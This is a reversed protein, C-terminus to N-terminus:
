YKLMVDSLCKMVSLDIDDKCKVFYPINPLLDFMNDKAVDRSDFDICVRWVYNDSTFIVGGDIKTVKIDSPKFRMDKFKKLLLRNQAIMVDSDDYLVAYTNIGDSDWEDIVLRSNSKLLINDAKKETLVGDFTDFKGYKAFCKIDYETDNVAIIRIKGDQIVPFICIPEFANKVPYYPFRKKFYYDVITWSHTSPWSDNYMWFVSSSSDFKRARFNSSYEYLGESQIGGSMFLYDCVDMSRADLDTWFKVFDYTSGGKFFSLANDHYIWSKSGINIEEKPIFEKLSDKTSAGLVGGENPFRCEMDRYMWYNSKDTPHSISVDWPHQDGTYPSNHDTGTESYPSSPWYPKSPDEAEVINPIRKHFISYDPLQSREMVFDVNCLWELENNGCWVALSPHHALERVQYTIEAMVNKVFKFDDGPYQSCAFICDHWVLIGLEDCADLMHHDAYYGGGWLRLLNFNAEAALEVCERTRQPTVRAGIIDLPVWNGGKAFVPVGNVELIFYNGRKPHKSKDITVKRIGVRKSYSIINHSEVEINVDIDYMFQTKFPKPFWLRPNEILVEFDYLNEGKTVEFDKSVVIDTDKIKATIKVKVADDALNDLFSKINLNATQLDESLDVTVSSQTLFINESFEIRVDKWIGVNILHPNWDWSFQYQPKRIWARNTLYDPQAYIYKRSKDYSEYLGSDIRVAITNEGAIFKGTTNIICPVFCNNHQAVKEGNIYIYSFTDLGEFILKSCKSIDRDDLNIVKRYVWIDEEVWRAELANRGYLCDKIVGERELDLHIEGPVIAGIFGELCVDPKVFEEWNGHQGDYNNILWDGNLSLTCSM